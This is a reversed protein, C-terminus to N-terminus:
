PSITQYVYDVADADACYRLRMGDLYPILVSQFPMLLDYIRSAMNQGNYVTFVPEVVGILTDLTSYDEALYLGSLLLLYAIIEKATMGTFDDPDDKTAQNFHYGGYHGTTDVSYPQNPNLATYSALKGWAGSGQVRYIDQGANSYFAQGGTAPIWLYPPYSKYDVGGVTFGIGLILQKNMLDYADYSGDSNNLTFIGYSSLAGEGYDISLIRNKGGPNDMRTMSPSVTFVTYFEGSTFIDDAITLDTESNVTVVASYTSWSPTHDTRNFVMWGAAVGWTQFTATSDVLHSASTSTAKGYHVPRYYM